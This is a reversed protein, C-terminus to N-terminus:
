LFSSLFSFFIDFTLGVFFYVFLYELNNRVSRECWRVVLGNIKPLSVTTTAADMFDIFYMMYTFTLFFFWLLFVLAHCKCGSRDPAYRM